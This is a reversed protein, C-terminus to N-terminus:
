RLKADLEGEFLRGVFLDAGLSPLGSGTHSKQRGTSLLMDLKSAAGWFRALVSHDRLPLFVLYFMDSIEMSM